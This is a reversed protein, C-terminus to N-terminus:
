VLLLNHHNPITPVYINRNLTIQNKKIAQVKSVICHKLYYFLKIFASVSKIQSMRKYVFRLLTCLFIKEFKPKGDNIKEAADIDICEPCRWKEEPGSPAQSVKM